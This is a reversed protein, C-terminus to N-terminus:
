RPPLRHGGFGNRKLLKAISAEDEDGRVSPIMASLYEDLDSETAFGSEVAKCMWKVSYAVLNKGEYRKGSLHLLLAVVSARALLRPDDDAGNIVTTFVRSMDEIASRRDDNLYLTAAVRYCIAGINYESYLYSTKTPPSEIVRREPIRGTAITSRFYEDVARSALRGWTGTVAERAMSAAETAKGRERLIRAGAVLIGTKVEGSLESLGSKFTEMGFREDGLGWVENLICLICLDEFFVDDVSGIGAM